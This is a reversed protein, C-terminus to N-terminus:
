GDRIGSGPDRIESRPDLLLWLHHPPFLKNDKTKKYGCIECSKQNPSRPAPIRFFVKVPDRPWFPVLDRIQVAVSRLGILYLVVTITSSQYRYKNFRSLRISHM